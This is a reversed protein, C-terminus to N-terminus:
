YLWFITVSKILTNGSLLETFVTWCAFYLFSHKGHEHHHWATTPPPWTVQTEQSAHGNRPQILSLIQETRPRTLERYSIAVPLEYNFFLVLIRGTFIYHTIQLSETHKLVTINPTHSKTLSKYNRHYLDTLVLASLSLLNTNLSQLNHLDALTNYNNTTVVQLNWIFGIVLGFRRRLYQSM